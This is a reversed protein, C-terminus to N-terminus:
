GNIRIGINNSAFMQFLNRRSMKSQRCEHSFRHRSPSASLRVSPRVSPRAAPRISPRSPRITTGSLRVFSPLVSPRISPLVSSRFSPLVSPRFFPLVSLCPINKDARKNSESISGKCSFVSCVRTRSSPDMTESYLQIQNRFQEM